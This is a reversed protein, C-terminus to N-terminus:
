LIARCEDAIETPFAEEISIFGQDIFNNIQATSLHKVQDVM